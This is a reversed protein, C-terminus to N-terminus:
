FKAFSAKISATARKTIKSIASRKCGMIAAAEYQNYGEWYLLRIVQQQKYTLSGVANRLKENQISGPFSDAELDIIIEETLSTNVSAMAVINDGMVEFSINHYRYRRDANNEKRNEDALFEEWSFDYGHEIKNM